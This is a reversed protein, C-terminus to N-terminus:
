ARRAALRRLVAELNVPKGTRLPAWLDGADAVRDLATRITFDRPDVGADIETWALPMSVGAYESARVSYATALTKGLINQLYDVYVTGRPRRKVMREITAVKPHQSSVLAAVLHCLLQGTEYTTRPPLPIYIHLGRSGSTKPVGPIGFRDLEDKVWRAVDLAQEFGAGEGPDLDIAAHDQHRPDAVRSFWPDQSIAALQAQYLLTTLSGGILRERTGEDDDDIPDVSADLTERRVGPPTQEPHRQQYFAHREIGNPFRKMVLPRDDVVPLLLPSVAAYYRLLDGKTVGLKPWFVKALNTVRLTDGGPLAVDGDKRADELAHLRAVVEDLRGNPGPGAAGARTRPRASRASTKSAAGKGASRTTRSERRVDAARKDDRQGLYVPHRLLGDNTWETFKVEVVLDPTVWHAKEMTKVRDAFPSTTRARTELLAALRELEAQDFGTGVNGAWHLAGAEDYYGVLLAGFHQRTNRPATWGGVVFEQRGLLKFKRWAPTRRGSQYVSTGDKVILGEWQEREARELMARGDDLAIDSLRIVDRLRGRPKVRQQLALRRAALPTGRLDDSGDRLLDFLVLVVPQRTEAREVDAASQLMIRGQLHQFGLPRGGRGIAVIEGDLLLPQRLPRAFRELAEALRPFQRSKELGNRSYFAVHPAAGKRAPPRVDVLVRMGDYKPEYVYGPRALPPEGLSAMM